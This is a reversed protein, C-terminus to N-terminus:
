NLLIKRVKLSKACESERPMPIWRSLPEIVGLSVQILYKDYARIGERKGRNYHGQKMTSHDLM